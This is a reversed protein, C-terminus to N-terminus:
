GNKLVAMTNKYEVDTVRWGDGYKAITGEKLLTDISRGSRTERKATEESSGESEMMFAVFEKKSVHPDGAMMGCGAHFWARQFLAKAKELKSDGKVEPPKTGPVPVVSDVPEGDEDIWGHLRVKELEMYVADELEGDKQKRQVLQFTEAGCPAVSIEVDLAGRWASSGRARAQAEEAVGTHHVLIVSCSFELMIRACADLMSKADQAKNEDGDLFRHLTDVVVLDPPHPLARINEVATPYGTTNLNCGSKSIWMDLGDAGYKQKWAALRARLGWHGEGALYVVRGPRVQRGNWDSMGSAIRACWDLVMLTKGCGSPGHVMILADRQIWRKVLWRIPAPEQCFKDAPVLWGGTPPELLALLDHGAQAYDNADQGEVPVLTWRAGWQEAAKQAEREGTKSKDNDAVIHIDRHAGLRERMIRVVGSLNGATYAICVAEGTAEHISAATAFGEAVYLTKKLEGIMWFKNKTPGGRIYEKKGDAGVYQLTALEGNEDYLPLVLRGDGSVKAGHAQIGKRQLYPHDATALLCDEWITSAIDGAIDAAKVREEEALRAAKMQQADRVAIEAATLERGRDACWRISTNTKWNGFAGAPFDGGNGVYWGSRNGPKGDPNFRHFANDFVIADPPIMGADEIAAILQEEPSLLTTSDIVFPRGGFLRSLDAM